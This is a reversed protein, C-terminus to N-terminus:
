ELKMCALVHRLQEVGSGSNHIQGAPYDLMMFALSIRSKRPKGGLDIKWLKSLDKSVEFKKDLGSCHLKAPVM